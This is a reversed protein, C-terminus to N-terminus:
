LVSALQAEILCALDHVSRMFTEMIKHRENGEMVVNRRLFGTSLIEKLKEETKVGLKLDEVDQLPLTMGCRLLECSGGMSLFMGVAGARGGWGEARLCRLAVNQAVNQILQFLAPCLSTGVGV